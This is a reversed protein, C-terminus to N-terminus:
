RSSKVASSTALQFALLDELAGALDAGLDVLVAALFSKPALFYGVTCRRTYRPLRM